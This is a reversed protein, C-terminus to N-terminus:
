QRGVLDRGFGTVRVGVDQATETSNRWQSALVGHGSRYSFHGILFGVLAGRLDDGPSLRVPHTQM